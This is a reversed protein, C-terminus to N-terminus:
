PTPINLMHMCCSCLVNRNNICAARGGCQRSCAPLAEKPQVLYQAVQATGRLAIHGGCAYLREGGWCNYELIDKSKSLEADSPLTEPLGPILLTDDDAIHVIFQDVPILSMFWAGDMHVVYSGTVPM